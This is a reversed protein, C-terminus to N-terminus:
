SLLACQIKVFQMKSKYFSEGDTSGAEVLYFICRALSCQVPM